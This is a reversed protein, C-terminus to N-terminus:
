ANNKKRNAWMRYSESGQGLRDSIEYLISPNSEVIAGIQSRISDLLTHGASLAASRAAQDGTVQLANSSVIARGGVDLFNEIYVLLMVAALREDPRNGMNAAFEASSAALQNLELIQQYLSSPM